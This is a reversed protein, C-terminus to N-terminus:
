IVPRSSSNTAARAGSIATLETVPAASGNEYIYMEGWRDITINDARGGSHIYAAEANVLTIDAISSEWVSAMEAGSSVMYLAVNKFYAM